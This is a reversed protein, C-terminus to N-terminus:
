RAVMGGTTEEASLNFTYRKFFTQVTEDVSDVNIGANALMEVLYSKFSEDQFKLEENVFYALDIGFDPAYQLSNLQTSLLNKARSTQTNAIKLGTSDAGVIDKM